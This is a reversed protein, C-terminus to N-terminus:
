SKSVGYLTATSYQKFIIGITATPIMSISTIASTDSWLGASLSAIALTGNNESVSDLSVSKNTSGAYNLIVAELSGFTNATVGLDGTAYGWSIFSTSGVLSAASSGDGYVMRNTYNTSSANFTIALGDFTFSDSRTTRASVKLVLDTYTSPISTFSITAAGGVGVSVAAIKTFTNPM